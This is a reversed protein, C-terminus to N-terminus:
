PFGFDLIQCNPQCNEVFFKTFFKVPKVFVWFVIHLITNGAAGGLWGAM